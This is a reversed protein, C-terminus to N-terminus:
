LAILVGFIPSVKSANKAAAFARLEFAGFM